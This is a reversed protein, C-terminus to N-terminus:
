LTPHNQPEVVSVEMPLTGCVHGWTRSVHGTSGRGHRSCLECRWTWVRTLTELHWGGRSTVWSRQDEALVRHRDKTTTAGLVDARVWM